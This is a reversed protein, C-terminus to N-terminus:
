FLAKLLWQTFEVTTLIHKYLMKVGVTVPYHFIELDM